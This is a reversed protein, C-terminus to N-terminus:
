ALVSYANAGSVRALVSGSGAKTLGRVISVEQTCNPLIEIGLLVASSTISLLLDM